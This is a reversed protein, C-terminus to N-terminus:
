EAKKEAPEDEDKEAKRKEGAKEGNEAKEESKEKEAINEFPDEKIVSCERIHVRGCKSFLDDKNSYMKSCFYCYNFLDRLSDEILDTLRLLSDPNNIREAGRLESLDEKKM